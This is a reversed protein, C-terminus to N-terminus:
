GHKVLKARAHRFDVVLVFAPLVQRRSNLRRLKETVRNDLAREDNQLTGSVELVHTADAFFNDDDPDAWTDLPILFYDFGFGSKPSREYVTLHELPEIAVAAVGSAGWEVAEQFDSYTRRMRNTVRPGM